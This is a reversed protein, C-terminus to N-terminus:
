GAEAAGARALSIPAIDRGESRNQTTSPDVRELGAIQSQEYFPPIPPECGSLVQYTPWVATPMEIATQVDEPVLALRLTDEGIPAIGYDALNVIDAPNQNVTVHVDATAGGRVSGEEKKREKISESGLTDGSRRMSSFTLRPDHSALALSLDPSLTFPIDSNEPPLSEDASPEDLFSDEGWVEGDDGQPGLRRPRLFRIRAKAQSREAIRRFTAM